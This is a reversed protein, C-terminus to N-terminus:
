TKSNKKQKNGISKTTMNQDLCEAACLEIKNLSSRIITQNLKVSFKEYVDSDKWLECSFFNIQYNFLHGHRIYFNEEVYASYTRLGGCTNETKAQRDAPKTCRISCYSDPQRNYHMLGGGSCRCITKQLYIIPTDCLRFCLTPEMFSSTFFSEHFVQTFCGAYNYSSDILHNLSIIMIFFLIMSSSKSMTQKFIM